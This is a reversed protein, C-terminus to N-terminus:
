GDYATSQDFQKDYQKHQEIIAEIAQNASSELQACDPFSYFNELTKAVENAANKSNKLHEHEHILLNQYKREFRSIVWSPAEHTAPISPMTIKVNLQNDFESIFCIGKIKQWKFHWTLQWETKGQYQKQDPPFPSHKQIQANIDLVTKPFIDYHQYVVDVTTQANAFTCICLFIISLIRSVRM